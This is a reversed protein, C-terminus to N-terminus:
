LCLTHSIHQNLRFDFSPTTLSCNAGQAFDYHSNFVGISSVLMATMVSRRIDIADRDKSLPAIQLEVMEKYFIIFWQQEV